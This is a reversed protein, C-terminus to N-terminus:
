ELQEDKGGINASPRSSQSVHTRNGGFLKEKRKAVAKKGAVHQSETHVSLIMQCLLLAHRAFPVIRMTAVIENTRSFM